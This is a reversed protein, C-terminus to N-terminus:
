SSAAIKKAGERPLGPVGKCSRVIGAVGPPKALPLTFRQRFLMMSRLHARGAFTFPGSASSRQHDHVLEAGPFCKVKLGFCWVRACLDVDEMYLFYRTDMGRLKEYLATRIIFGTGMVWDADFPAENKWADRMIHREIRSQMVSRLQPVRRACVDLASYFRRASYQRSGDPNILDLGVLGTDREAHMYDLVRTVSDERFYTDPNLVLLYESRAAKAGLNVGSGFGENTESLLLRIGCPLESKLRTRSNDPSLNDVVIIDSEACIRQEIISQVCRLTLDTTKYNVIIVALRPRQSVHVESRKKM